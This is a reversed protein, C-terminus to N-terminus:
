ETVEKKIKRERTIKLQGKLNSSITVKTGDIPMITIKQIKNNNILGIAEQALKSVEPIDEFIEVVKDMFNEVKRATAARPCNCEATAMEDIYEEPSDKPVRVARTQGCYKCTGTTDM